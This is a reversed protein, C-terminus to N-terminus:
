SQSWPSPLLISEFAPGFPLPLRCPFGLRRGVLVRKCQLSPAPPPAAAAATAAAPPPIRQM